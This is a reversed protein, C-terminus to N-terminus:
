KCEAAIRKWKIHIRRLEEGNGTSHKLHEALFNKWIQEYTLGVAPPTAM